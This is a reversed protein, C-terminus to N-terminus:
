EIEVVEGIPMFGRVRKCIYHSRLTTWHWAGVIRWGRETSNLVLGGAAIGALVVLVICVALKKGFVGSQRIAVGGCEPCRRSGLGLLSYGCNPCVDAAKGTTDRCLQQLTRRLILRTTFAAVIISVCGALCLEQATPNFAAAVARRDGSRDFGVYWICLAVVPQILALLLLSKALAAKVREQSVPHRLNVRQAPSRRGVFALFCGIFVGSCVVLGALLSQAAIMLTEGRTSSEDIPLTVPGWMRTKAHEIVALTGADQLCVWGEHNGSGAAAARDTLYPSLDGADQTGELYTRRVQLWLRWQWGTLSSYVVPTSIAALILLLFAVLLQVTPKFM